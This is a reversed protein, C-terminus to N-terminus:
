SSRSWFRWWRASRTVRRQTADENAFHELQEELDRPTLTPVESPTSIISFEYAALSCTPPDGCLYVEMYRATTLADLYIYAPGTPEDGRNCVWITFKLPDGVTLRGDTRFIRIARGRIDREGAERQIKDPTELELQVHFPATRRWHLRGELPIAM